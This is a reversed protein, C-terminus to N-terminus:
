SAAAWSAAPLYEISPGTTRLCERIHTPKGDITTAVLYPDTVDNDNVAQAGTANAMSAEADSRIVWANQLTLSWEKNEQLYVTLGTRLDNALMIAGAEINKVKHSSM